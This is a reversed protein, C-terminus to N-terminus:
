WKENDTEVQLFNLLKDMFFLTKHMLGFKVYPYRNFIKLLDM